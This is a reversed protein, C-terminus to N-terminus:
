RSSKDLLSWGGERRTCLGLPCVQEGHQNMLQAVGQAQGVGGVAAGDHLRVVQAGHPVRQMVAQPGTVPVVDCMEITFLAM